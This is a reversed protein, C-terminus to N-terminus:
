AKPPQGRSFISRLVGEQIIAVGLLILALAVFLIAPLTEGLFLSGFLVSWVPV